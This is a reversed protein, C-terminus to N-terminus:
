LLIMAISGFKITRTRPDFNRFYQIQFVNLIRRYSIYSKYAILSKKQIISFTSLKYQFIRDFLELSFIFISVELFEIKKFSKFCIPHLVNSIFIKIVVVMLSTVIVDDIVDGNSGMM